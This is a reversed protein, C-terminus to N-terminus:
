SPKCFKNEISVSQVLFEVIKTGATGDGYLALDFDHKSDFCNKYADYINGPEAGALCNFGHEVLEVWETEDRLTICPKNFFFAEKQLGGSDTVVASCNELLYIMELYGVPEVIQISTKSLDLNLEIIKKQTRPHLPIIIPIEKSIKELGALIAKLRFPSDTNEARHITSLLYNDAFDFNPQRTFKQYYLAADLMVDGVLAVQPPQGYISQTSTNATISSVSNKLEDGPPSMTDSSEGGAKLSVATNALKNASSFTDAIGEKKLNHVALRTPCFLFNAAHDTLIRNTEEPMKRNFSRLGAEVHAVPIHLKVSALAGALTTNTDGYVLVIDPKVDILVKEIKELMQGTMAGHSLGHIDLMYDPEPIHMEDFFVASMNRDYHQGTHIIIEQIRTAGDGWNLNHKEIARSM